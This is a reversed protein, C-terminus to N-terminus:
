EGDLSLKRKGLAAKAAEFRRLTDPNQLTAQLGGKHPHACISGSIICKGAVACADPCNKVTLGAFEVPMKPAARLPRGRRRNARAHRKKKVAPPAEAPTETMSM